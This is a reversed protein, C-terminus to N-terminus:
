FTKFREFPQRCSRCVHISKCATAGFESVLGTETSGCYPCVSPEAARRRSSELQVMGPPAIGFQRLKERAPESMWDTTWAPAYVTEITVERFGARKLTATIEEEIVRMAPCGSYTPTITVNVSGTEEDAKVDRVIGLELISLVPVEPDKVLQLVRRAREAATTGDLRGATKDVM